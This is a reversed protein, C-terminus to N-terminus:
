QVNRDTSPLSGGAVAATTTRSAALGPSSWWRSATNVRTHLAGQGCVGNGKSRASLSVPPMPRAGIEARPEDAARDSEPGRSFRVATGCGRWHESPSANGPLLPRRNAWVADLKRSRRGLLDRTVRQRVATVAKNALMILHVHNVVIAAAPLAARVAVAAYGAHPDIVVV